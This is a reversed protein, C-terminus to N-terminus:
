SPQTLQRTVDLNAVKLYNFGDRIKGEIALMRSEHDCFASACVLAFIKQYTVANFLQDKGSQYFGETVYAEVPAIENNYMFYALGFDDVTNATSTTTSSSAVTALEYYFYYGSMAAQLDEIHAIVTSSYTITTSDIELGVFNARWLGNAKMGSVSATFTYVPTDGSSDETVTWNLTSLAVRDTRRYRQGNEYDLEDYVTRGGGSLFAMGWAHIWQVDASINKVTNGFVGAVDDNYNSWAIHCAPLSTDSMVITLWGIGSPTYYNLGNHTHKPCVAGYSSSTPKTQSYYVEYVNGSVVIYGNNEQTTGYAGWNGAVCPFYFAKKSDITLNAGEDVLNMGTSVFSDAIFPNLGSDLNGKIGLLLANGSKVDADGGTTQAVFKNTIILPTDSKSTIESATIDISGDAMLADLTTTTAKTGDWAGASKGSTFKYLSGQYVVIDGSDYTADTSFPEFGLGVLANSFDGLEDVMQNLVANLIAGTIAGVGNTTIYFDIAQKLSEYNNM